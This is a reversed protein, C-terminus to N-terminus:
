IVFSLCRLFSILSFWPRYRGIHLALVVEVTVHIMSLAYLVCLILMQRFFELSILHDFSELLSLLDLCQLLVELPPVFSVCAFVSLSLGFQFHVTRATSIM